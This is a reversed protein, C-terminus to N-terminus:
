SQGLGSLNFINKRENFTKPFNKTFEVSVSCLLSIHPIQLPYTPSHYAPNHAQEMLVHRNGEKGGGPGLYRLYPMASVLAIHFVCVQFQVYQELTEINEPNYRCRVM